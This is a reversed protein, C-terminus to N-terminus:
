ISIKAWNLYHLLSLPVCEAESAIIAEVNVEYTVSDLGHDQSLVASVLIAEGVRVAEAIRREGRLRHDSCNTSCSDEHHKVEGSM